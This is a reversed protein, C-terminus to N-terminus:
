RRDNRDAVRSGDRVKDSPHLIMRDGKNLGNLVEASDNNRHGVIIPTFHARGDIMRYVAWHEGQRFLGSLPIHLAKDDRWTVIRAIVRYDHGLRSWAESAGEFDLFTRVRQEEIGLASVKTFGAPEVLRVRATVPAELGAGDVRALAGPTVRVADTSLLEVVIDIDLPDGIEFLPTGALM